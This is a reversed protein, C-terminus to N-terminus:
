NKSNARCPCIRIPALESRPQRCVTQSDCLPRLNQIMFHVYNYIEDKLKRKNAFIIYIQM